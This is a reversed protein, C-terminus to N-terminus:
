ASVACSLVSIGRIKLRSGPIATEMLSALIALWLERAAVVRWARRPLYGAEAQTCLQRYRTRFAEGVLDVLEPAIAPDFLYWREDAEVRRLFEDPIWLATNLSPTRRYPDGANRRLDLFAEVELHWPELYVCMTGRRRGGQSVSAILADYLHLFPILGGSVGNIGRVPSGVARIRTVAAGIGGAYKALLGFEHASDLISELSDEVEALYCSALQHHPTGANFLTPTSPLYRLSSMLDYWRLAWETRQEPPEALALGMAVRLFLAQPRERIQRTEPHRVLYRDALTTLAITSLLADREPRLANTLQDLEFERLRPNLAGCAIGTELFRRFHEPYSLVRGDDAELSLRTLLLAAAEREAEPREPLEQLRALFQAELERERGLRPNSLELSVSQQYSTSVAM